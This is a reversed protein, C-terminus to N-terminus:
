SVFESNYKGVLRGLADRQVKITYRNTLTDYDLALKEAGAVAKCRVAIKEALQRAERTAEGKTMGDWGPNGINMADSRTFKLDVSIFHGFRSQQYYADNAKHVRVVMPGGIVELTTMGPVLQQIEFPKM